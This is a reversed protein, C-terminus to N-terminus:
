EPCGVISLRSEVNFVEKLLAQSLTRPATIDAASLSDAAIDVGPLALLALSSEM